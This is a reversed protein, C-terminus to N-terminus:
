DKSKAVVASVRRCFKQLHGSECCSGRLLATHVDAFQSSWRYARVPQCSVSRILRPENCKPCVTISVRCRHKRCRHRTEVDICAALDGPGVSEFERVPPTARWHM